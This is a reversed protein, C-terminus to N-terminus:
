PDGGGGRETPGGGNRDGCTDSRPVAGCALDARLPPDQAAQRGQAGAPPDNEGQGGVSSSGGPPDVLHCLHLVQVRPPPRVERGGSRVRDDGRSDPGPVAPGPEPGEERGVARVAPAG